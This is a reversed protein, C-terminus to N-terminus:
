NNKSRVAADAAAGSTENLNNSMSKGPQSPGKRNMTGTYGGFM